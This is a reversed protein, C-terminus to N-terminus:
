RAAIEIERADGWLKELEYYEREQQRFIHVIVSGYDLIVWRGENFGERRLPRYGEELLLDEINEAIVKVQITSRGSAIVFYDALVTVDRVDLILVDFAKEELAINAIRQALQWETLLEGEEFPHV